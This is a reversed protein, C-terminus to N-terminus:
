PMEGSLRFARQMQVLVLEGELRQPAFRWGHLSQLLAEAAEPDVDGDIVPVRVKGQTDVVFSVAISRDGVRRAVARSLRPLAIPNAVPLQPLASALVTRLRNERLPAALQQEMSASHSLETITGDSRFEFQLLERRPQTPAPAPLPEFLWERMALEAAAAFSPHSAELAVVDIVMGDADITVAAVAHGDSHGASRVDLPFAPPPAFRLGAPKVYGGGPELAMSARSALLLVGLLVARHNM